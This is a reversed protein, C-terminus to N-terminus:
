TKIIYNIVTYPQLNNAADGNAAAQSTGSGGSYQLNATAQANSLGVSASSSNGTSTVRAVEYANTGVGGGYWASGSWDITYYDYSGFWDMTGASYSIGMYAGSNLGGQAMHQHTHGNAAFTTTGTLSSGHTHGADLHTHRPMEASTLAHKLEGSKGGLTFTQTQSASDTVAGAGVPVRGRLDPLYYTTGSHVGYTDGLLSALAPYTTSSFSSGDCILWGSPASGAIYQMMAGTPVLSPIADTGGLAHTAAHATPAATVTAAGGLTISTGNVTVTSAALKAVAIAASPSIDGDVITSNAIMTSTVTGTDGATIATGTVKAKDISGALMTNTVSGTDSTTVLGLSTPTKNEWLTNASNRAILNGAAPSTILADHIENLEFGNQPRVFIEGNVNQARTVVGIFVLHAPAVPKNALGYILNGSTGLWVPDGNAASGTNLGALLGETIVYGKGNNPLSQAILGMTKSSTSEAANSAKSVVMNTGNASSVYVAQGMTLAEGAKVEHKLVSTFSAAPAADSWSTQYDSDGAKVLIQGPAGGTPVANSGGFTGTAQDYTIFQSTNFAPYKPTETGFTGIAIPFSPDGGEFLVWVGHGVAPPEYIVGPSNRVWAWDTVQDFLVQPIRLKLRGQNLPDSNDAVVGRYVGYFRRNGYEDIVM